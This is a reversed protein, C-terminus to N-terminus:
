VQYLTHAHHGHLYGNKFSTLSISEVLVADTEMQCELGVAFIACPDGFLNM